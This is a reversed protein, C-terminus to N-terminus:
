REPRWEPWREPSPTRLNSGGKADEPFAQVPRRPVEAYPPPAAEMGLAAAECYVAWQGNANSKERDPPTKRLHLTAYRRFQNAAVSLAATRRREAVTSEGEPIEGAKASRALALALVTVVNSVVAGAAFAGIFRIDM